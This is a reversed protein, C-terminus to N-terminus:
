GCGHKPTIASTQRHLLQGLEGDMCRFCGTPTCCPWKQNAARLHNCEQRLLENEARLRQLENIDATQTQTETLPESRGRNGHCGGAIGAGGGNTLYAGLAWGSHRVLQGLVWPLKGKLRVPM